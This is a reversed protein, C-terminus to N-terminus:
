KMNDRPRSPKKRSAKDAKQQSFAVADDHGTRNGDSGEGSLHDDKFGPIEPASFSMCYAFFLETTKCQSSLSSYGLGERIPGRAEHKAEPDDNNHSLPIIM